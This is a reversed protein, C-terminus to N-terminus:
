SWVIRAVRDHQTGPAVEEHSMIPLVPFEKELLRRLVGRVESNTLIVVPSGAAALPEYATRVAERLREREIEDLPETAVVRVRSELRKDVELAVLRRGGLVYGSTIQNRLQRRVCDAYHESTRRSTEEGPRLTWIAAANPTILYSRSQDVEVSGNVALVGELVGALDRISIQEDLLRRAVAVLRHAGFRQSIADAITPYDDRLRRLQFSFARHALLSGAHRRIERALTLSVQGEPGWTALGAENLESLRADDVEVVATETGFTPHVAPRGVVGHEALPAPPVVMAESARLGSFPPFLVDNLQIRFWGDDVEADVEFTVDPLLLGLENFFLELLAAPAFALRVDSSYPRLPSEAPLGVAEALDRGVLVRIPLVARAALVGEIVQEASVEPEVDTTETHVELDELSRPDVSVCRRVLERISVSFERDGIASSGLAPVTKAWDKRLREAVAETIFLERNRAVVRAIDAALHEATTHAADIESASECQRQEIWARAVPADSELEDVSIALDVPIGLQVTLDGVYRTMHERFTKGERSQSDRIEPHGSFTIRVECPERNGIESM